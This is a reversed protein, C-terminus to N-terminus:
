LSLWANFGSPSKCIVPSFPFPAFGPACVFSAVDCPAGACFAGVCLAKAVLAGACFADACLAAASLLAAM